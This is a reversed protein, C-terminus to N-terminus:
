AKTCIWWLHLLFHKIWEFLAKEIM